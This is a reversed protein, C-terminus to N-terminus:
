DDISLEKGIYVTEGLNNSVSYFPIEFVTIDNELIKNATSLIQKKDPKPVINYSGDYYEGIYGASIPCTVM